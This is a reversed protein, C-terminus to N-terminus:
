AHTGGDQDEADDRLDALRRTIADRDFHIQGEATISFPMGTDELIKWTLRAMEEDSLDEDRQAM